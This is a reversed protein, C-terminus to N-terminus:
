PSLVGPADKYARGRCIDAIWGDDMQFQKGLDSFTAGNARANRMWKVQTDSLKGKTGPRHGSRIFDRMNALHTDYRLNNIHNNTKDGDNHCVERGKPCPGVFVLMVLRHISCRHKKRNRYLWVYLYGTKKQYVTMIRQPGDQIQATPDRLAYYSRVKGCDSVEYGAYGPVPRWKETM